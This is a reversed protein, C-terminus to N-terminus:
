SRPDHLRVSSQVQIGAAHVNIVEVVTIGGRLGIDQRTDTKWYVQVETPLHETRREPGQGRNPHQPTLTQVGSVEVDRLCLYAM